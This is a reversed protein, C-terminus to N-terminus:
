GTLKELGTCIMMAKQVWEGEEKKLLALIAAQKHNEDLTENAFIENIESHLVEIKEPICLHLDEKMREICM